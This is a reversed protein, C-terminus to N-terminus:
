SAFSNASTTRLPFSSDSSLGCEADSSVIFISSSALFCIPTGMDTQVFILVLKKCLTFLFKKTIRNESENMEKNREKSTFILNEFENKGKNREKFTFIRNEYEYYSVTLM